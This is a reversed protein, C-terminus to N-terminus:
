SRGVLGYRKVTALSSPLKLVGDAPNLSTQAVTALGAVNLVDVSLHQKKVYFRQILTATEDVITAIPNSSAM